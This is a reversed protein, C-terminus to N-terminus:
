LSKLDKNSVAKICFKINHLLIRIMNSVDGLYGSHKFIDFVINFVVNFYAM